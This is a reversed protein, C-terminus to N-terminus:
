VKLANHASPLTVHLHPNFDLLTQDPHHGHQSGGRESQGNRCAAVGVGGIGAIGTCGGNREHKIPRRVRVMDAQVHGLLEAVELVCSDIHLNQRGSLGARFGTHLVTHCVDTEGRQAIHGCEVRLAGIQFEDKIQRM